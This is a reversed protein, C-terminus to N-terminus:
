RTMSGGSFSAAGDARSLYQFSHGLEHAIIAYPGHHIRTAPTWFAGIKNDISGGFATNDTGGVVFFLFKYKTALSEGKRAWKLTDVYFNYARDAASLVEAVNFRRNVVSNAMPDDGYEKAWFLVFHDSSKSRTFCFESEPNNYDNNAPVRAIRAPILLEKGSAKASAQLPSAGEPASARATQALVIAGLFIAIGM